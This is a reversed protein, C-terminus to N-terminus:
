KAVDGQEVAKQQRLQTLRKDLADLVQESYNKALGELRTRAEGEGFELAHGQDDYSKRLAEVDLSAKLADPPVVATKSAAIYRDIAGSIKAIRDLGLSEEAIEVNLLFTLLADVTAGVDLAAATAPFRAVNPDAM